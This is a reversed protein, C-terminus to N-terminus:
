LLCNFSTFCWTIGVTLKDIYSSVFMACLIKDDCQNIFILYLM